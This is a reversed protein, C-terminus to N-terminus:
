FTVIVWVCMVVCLVQDIVNESVCAAGIEFGVEFSAYTKNEMKTNRALQVFLVAGPVVRAWRAEGLVLLLDIISTGREFSNNEIKGRDVVNVNGRHLIEDVYAVLKVAVCSRICNVPM